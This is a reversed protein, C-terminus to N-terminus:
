GGGALSKLRDAAAQGFPSNPALDRTTEFAQRAEDKRNGATLVLGLHYYAPAMTPDLNIAFRLAQEAEAYRQLHYLALGLNQYAIDTSMLRPSKIAREYATVAAAWQQQEALATGVNLHAEAFDPDLETARNFEPLALDPRGIQLYVIGLVNRYTPVEPDFANAQQMYTLAHALKREGMAKTAAEFSARAQLRETDTVRKGACGATALLGTLIM